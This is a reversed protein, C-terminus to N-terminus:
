FPKQPFNIRNISDKKDEVQRSAKADAKGVYNMLYLIAGLGSAILIPFGLGDPDTFYNIANEIYEYIM